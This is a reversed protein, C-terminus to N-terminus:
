SIGLHSSNLRTSKRDLEDAYSNLSLRLPPGIPVANVLAGASVTGSDPDVDVRMSRPDFTLKFATWGDVISPLSTTVFDNELTLRSVPRWPPPLTDALAPKQRLLGFGPLGKLTILIALAPLTPSIPM